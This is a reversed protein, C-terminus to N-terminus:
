VSPRGTCYGGWHRNASYPAVRSNAAGTRCVAAGGRSTMLLHAGLHALL